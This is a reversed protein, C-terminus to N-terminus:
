GVAHTFLVVWVAQAVLTLVDISHLLTSALHRERIASGELARKFLTHGLTMASKPACIPLNVFTVEDIALACATAFQRAGIAVDEFALELFALRIALAPKGLRIAVDVLSAERGANGLAM